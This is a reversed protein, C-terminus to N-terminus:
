NSIINISKDAKVKRYNKFYGKNKERWIKLYLARKKEWTSSKTKYRFYNPNRTRWSRQNEMQRKYQCEPSSCVKQNSHYKDPVFEKKCFKCIKIKSM